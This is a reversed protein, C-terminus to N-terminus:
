AFLRWFSKNIKIFADDCSHSLYNEVKAVVLQTPSSVLVLSSVWSSHQPIFGKGIQVPSFVALIIAASSRASSHLCGSFSHGSCPHLSAHCLYYLSAVLCCLSTRMMDVLFIFLVVLLLFSSYPFSVLNKDLSQEVHFGQFNM